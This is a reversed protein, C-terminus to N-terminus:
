ARMGLHLFQNTLSPCSLAMVTMTSSVDAIILLFLKPMSACGSLLFLLLLGTVLSATM